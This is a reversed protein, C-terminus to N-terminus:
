LPGYRGGVILTMAALLVALAVTMAARFIRRTM